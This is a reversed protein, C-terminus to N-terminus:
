SVLSSLMRSIVVNEVYARARENLFNTVPRRETNQALLISINHCANLNELFSLHLKSLSNRGSPAENIDFYKRLIFYTFENSDIEQMKHVFM